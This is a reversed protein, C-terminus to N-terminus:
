NNKKQKRQAKVIELGLMEVIKPVLVREANSVDLVHRGEYVEYSNGFLSKYEKISVIGARRFEDKNGFYAYSADPNPNRRIAEKYSQIMPQFRALLQTDGHILQNNRGRQKNYYIGMMEGIAVLPMAMKVGRDYNLAPSLYIHPMGQIGLAHIAGMSESIVMVPQYTEVWQGIQRTAVEPDFDYTECIVHLTCPEGDKTLNMKSLVKNLQKPMRTKQGGGMGHLFLINMNM